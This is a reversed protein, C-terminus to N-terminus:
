QPADKPRAAAIEDLLQDLQRLILTKLPSSPATGEPMPPDFISCKVLILAMQAHSQFQSRAQELPLRASLAIAEILYDIIRRELRAVVAAYAPNRLAAVSIEAWILGDEGAGCPSTDIKAHLAQRLAQLPEEAATIRAFHQRTEEIDRQIMAEIMAAKSPFYRYFNGVSMGAARALDQMSAREFGKEAFVHRVAALIEGGRRGLGEGPPRDEAPDATPDSQAATLMQAFDWLFFPLDPGSHVNM